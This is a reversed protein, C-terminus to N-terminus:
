FTICLPVPLFYGNSMAADGALMHFDSDKSGILDVRQNVAEFAIAADAHFLAERLKVKGSDEGLVKNKIAENLSSYLNSRPSGRIKKELSEVEKGVTSLKAEILKVDVDAPPKKLTGRIQMMELRLRVLRAKFKAPEAKRRFSDRKTDSCYDTPDCFITVDAEFSHAMCTAFDVIHGPMAPGKNRYKHAYISADIALHPKRTRSSNNKDRLAVLVLAVHDASIDEVSYLLKSPTTIGM